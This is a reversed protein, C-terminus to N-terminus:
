LCPPFTPLSLLADPGPLLPRDPVPSFSVVSSHHSCEECVGDSRVPCSAGCIRCPSEEVVASLRGPTASPLTGSSPKSSRTHSIADRFLLRLRVAAVRRRVCLRQAARRQLLTSQVTSLVCVRLRQWLARSHSSQRARLRQQAILRDGATLVEREVRVRFIRGHWSSLIRRMLTRPRLRHQHPKLRLLPVYCGHVSLVDLPETLATHSSSARQRTEGASFILYQSRQGSPATTVGFVRVESQIARALGMIELQGPPADALTMYEAYSRVLLDTMQVSRQPSRLYLFAEAIAANRARAYIYSPSSSPLSPVDVPSVAVMSSALALAHDPSQLAWDTVHRVSCLRLAVLADHRLGLPLHDLEAACAREASSPSFCRAAYFLSSGLSPAATAVFSILTSANVWEITDRIDMMESPSVLPPTVTVLAGRRNDASVGHEGGDPASRVLPSPARDVTHQLLAKDEFSQSHPQEHPADSFSHPLDIPNPLRNTRLFSPSSRARVRRAAFRCFCITILKAARSVRRYACWHSQICRCANTTALNLIPVAVCDDPDDDDSSDDAEESHVRCVDSVLSYVVSAITWRRWLSQVLRCARTIHLLEIRDVLPQLSTGDPENVYAQCVGTVLSGAVFSTVCRRLLSRVWRHVGLSRALDRTARRALLWTRWRAQLFSAANRRTVNERMVRLLDAYAQSSNDVLEPREADILELRAADISSIRLQTHRPRAGPPAFVARHSVLSKLLRTRQDDTLESPLGGVLCSLTSILRARSDGTVSTPIHPSLMDVVSVHQWQAVLSLVSLFLQMSIGEDKGGGVLFVDATPPASVAVGLLASTSYSAGSRTRGCPSSPSPAAVSAALPPLTGRSGCLWARWRVQLALAAAYGVHQPFCHRLWRPPSALYGRFRVPSGHLLAAHHLLLRACLALRRRRRAIGRRAYSQVVIVASVVLGDVAWQDSLRASALSVRPNLPPGVPAVFGHPLTSLVLGVVNRLRGHQSARWSAQTPHQSQYMSMYVAEVEAPSWVPSSSLAISPVYDQPRGPLLGSGFTDYLHQFCRAYAVSDIYRWVTYRSAPEAISPRPCWLRCLFGGRARALANRAFRSEVWKLHAHLSAMVRADCGLDFYPCLSYDTHSSWASICVGRVDHCTSALCFSTRQEGRCTLWGVVFGAVDGLVRPAGILVLCSQAVLSGDGFSSAPLSKRILSAFHGRRTDSFHRALTPAPVAYVDGDRLSERHVRGYADLPVDRLGPIYTSLPLAVVHAEYRVDYGPLVLADARVAMLCQSVYRRYSSATIAARLRRRFSLLLSDDASGAADDALAELVCVYCRWSLLGLSRIWARLTGVGSPGYSHVSGHASPPSVLLWHLFPPFAANLPREGQGGSSGFGYSAFFTSRMSQYLSSHLDDCVRRVAAFGHRPAAAYFLTDSSPARGGRGGRGSAGRGSSPLQRDTLDSSSITVYHGVRISGPSVGFTRLQPPRVHVAGLDPQRRLVSALYGVLRSGHLRPAQPGPLDRGALRERDFHRELDSYPVPLRPASPVRTWLEGMTSLDHALHDARLAAYSGRTVPIRRETFAVLHGGRSTVVVDSGRTVFACVASVTPVPPLGLDHQFYEGASLIFGDRPIAATWALGSPSGTPPLSRLEDVTFRVVALRRSQPNGPTDQCKMRLAAALRDNFVESGRPPQARGMRRWTSGPLPADDLSSPLAVAGAELGPDDSVDHGISLAFEKYHTSWAPFLASFHHGDPLRTRAVPRRPPSIHPWLTSALAHTLVAVPGKPRWQSVSPQLASGDLGAADGELSQMDQEFLSERQARTSRIRRAASGGRSGRSRETPMRRDAASASATGVFAVSHSQYVPHLFRDSSRVTLYRGPSLSIFAAQQICCGEVFESLHLPLAFPTDLYSRLLALDLGWTPLGARAACVLFCAYSRIPVSVVDSALLSPSAYSAFYSALDCDPDLCSILKRSDDDVVSLGFVLHQPSAVDVSGLFRFDAKGVSLQPYASAFTSALDSVLTSSRCPVRSSLIHGAPTVLISGRDSIPTVVIHFHSFPMRPWPGRCFLLSRIYSLLSPDAVSEPYDVVPFGYKRAMYYMQLQHGLLQGLRPWLANKLQQIDRIHDPSNGTARCWDEFVVGPPLAGYVGWVDGACCFRPHRSVWGGGPKVYRVWKSPDRPDREGTFVPIWDPGLHQFPRKGGPCTHTSIWSAWYLLEEDILPPCDKEHYIVHPDPSREGTVFGTILTYPVGSVSRLSGIVSENFWAVGHQAYALRDVGISTSLTRQSVDTSHGVTPILTHPGCSFSTFTSTWVHGFHKALAARIVTDDLGNGITLTVPPNSHRFQRMFDRGKISVDIGAVTFGEDSVGKTLAGPLCGKHVQVPPGFRLTHAATYIGFLSARLEVRAHQAHYHEDSARETMSWCRSESKHRFYCWFPVSQLRRVTGESSISFGFSSLPYPFTAAGTTHVCFSKSPCWKYRLPISAEVYRPCGPLRGRSYRTRAVLDRLLERAVEVNHGSDIRGLLTYYLVYEHNAFWGTVRGRMTAWWRRFFGLRPKSYPVGTGKRMIPVMKLARATSLIATSTHTYGQAPDQHRLSLEGSSLAFSRAVQEDWPDDLWHEKAAATLVLVHATNFALPCALSSGELARHMADLVDASHSAGDVRLHSDSVSHAGHPLRGAGEGGVLFVGPDAPVPASAVPLSCAVPSPALGSGVVAIASTVNSSPLQLRSGLLRLACDIVPLPPPVSSSAGLADCVGDRLIGQLHRSRGSRRLSSVGQRLVFVVRDVLADGLLLPPSAGVPFVAPLPVPSPVVVPVCPSAHLGGGGRGGSSSPPVASLAAPASGCASSSASSCAATVACGVAASPACVAPSPAALAPSCGPPSACLAGPAHQRCWQALTVFLPAQWRRFSRVASAPYIAHLHLYPVSPTVHFGLLCADPSSVRTLVGMAVVAQCHMDHVLADRGAFSRLAHCDRIAARPIVLLHVYGHQYQYPEVDRITFALSSRHLFDVSVDGRAMRAFPTALLSVDPSSASPSPAPALPPSVHLVACSPASSESVSSVLSSSPVDRRGGVSAGYEDDIPAARVVFSSVRGSTDSLLVACSPASSELFASSLVFFSEYVAARLLSPVCLLCYLLQPPLELLMGVVHLSLSRLDASAASFCSAVHSSVRPLLLEGVYQCASGRVFPDSSLFCALSQAVLLGVHRAAVAWDM